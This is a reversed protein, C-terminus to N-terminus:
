EGDPEGEPPTVLKQSQQMLGMLMGERLGRDAVRVRECPWMECLVDIIACGAVLMMARDDGISPEAGRQAPTRQSMDRAIRVADVSDLWLGDVKDRQYYPLKLHVSALSTITGSTGIIHGMGGKFVNTFRTACGAEDIRDRVVQKMDAYWTERDDHEKVQETLTVVGIPLSAWASIPPRHARMKGEPNRLKRVDVWSM